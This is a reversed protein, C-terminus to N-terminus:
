LTEGGFIGNESRKEGLFCSKLPSKGWFEVKQPSNGFIKMELSTKKGFNAM